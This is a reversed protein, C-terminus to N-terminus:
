RDDPLFGNSKLFQEIGRMQDILRKVVKWQAGDLISKFKEEPVRGMQYIVVYHDYQGFRKPPRAGEVIVDILQRRQDARFSMADDMMAVVWEVSARYNFTRREFDATEYQEAQPPTLTTKLAKAFLSKDGFCGVSLTMQFPQIEQWIQNFKNQDNRVLEFKKRLEEIRDLLRKIDGKGALQLKRKQVESIGCAREVAEIELILKSDLKSRAVAAGTGGFVWQDFNEAAIMFGQQPQVVLEAEDADDQASARGGSALVIMLIAVAPLLGRIPKRILTM